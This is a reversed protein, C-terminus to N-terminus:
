LKGAIQNGNGQSLLKVSEPASANSVYTQQERFNVVFTLLSDAMYESNPFKQNKNTIRNLDHQNYNLFTTTSHHKNCYLAKSESVM